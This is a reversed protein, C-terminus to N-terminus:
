GSPNGNFAILNVTNRAPNKIKNRTAEDAIKSCLEPGAKIGDRSAIYAALGAIHPSAMSTGTFSATGGGPVTSVVGVAPGNIDVLSGYNSGSYRTDDRATGGVTCVSETSAPSFGSADRNSNGAAVAVFFGKRTLADAADNTAKSYGGGLSMNVVVGNPCNRNASDTAVYNM